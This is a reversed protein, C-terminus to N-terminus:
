SAEPRVPRVADGVAIRGGEIVRARLGGRGELRAKLGPTLVGELYGCPDCPRIGELLASGIRFRRGILGNLDTRRTVLNRRLLLPEAVGAAEAAEAAVLTVERDPFDHFTGGGEAYRDGPLGVGAVLEVTERTEM